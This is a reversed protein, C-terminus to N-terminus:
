FQTKISPRQHDQHHRPFSHHQEGSLTKQSSFRNDYNNDNADDDEAGVVVFIFIMTSLIMM